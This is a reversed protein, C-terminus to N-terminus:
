DNGKRRPIFVSIFKMIPNKSDAFFIYPDNLFKICLRQKKSLNQKKVDKVKHKVKIKKSVKTHVDLSQLKLYSVELELNERFQLLEEDSMEHSYKITQESLMSHEQLLRQIDKQIISSTRSM